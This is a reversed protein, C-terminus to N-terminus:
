DIGSIKLIRHVQSSFHFIAPIAVSLSCVFSPTNEPPLKRPKAVAVISESLRTLNKKVM